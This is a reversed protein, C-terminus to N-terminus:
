NFEGVITKLKRKYAEYGFHQMLLKHDPIYKETNYIIEQLASETAKANETPILMGLKGNLLADVSGDEDGAIVPVGYFMAEIFVIGFGEKKSPMIYIDALSFHAPLEEDPIFGTLIINEQLGARKIMADIYIKESADYSGALLYKLSKHKNKLTAIANIVNEYGKYRDRESLRTLTFIIIDNQTFNYRQMLVADRVKDPKADLFPDICNNLVACKNQPIGHLDMVKQMTFMSVSIIEDCSHLMMLKQKNLPHWIEIGHALLIVKTDPSLKKIMWGAVLLNIHSLIVVHSKIGTLIAETVFKSKAANYGCFIEAPFYENAEASDKKDHMSFIRVPLNSQLGQEYLAKGMVRCVKEIGGTTSFVKLTLFL